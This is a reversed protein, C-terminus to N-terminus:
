PKTGPTVASLAATPTAVGIVEVVNGSGSNAVWVNGSIDIGLATPANLQGFQYGYTGSLPTGAYNFQSISGTGSSNNLTWVSGAGDVAVDVPSALGGGNTATTVTTNTNGVSTNAVNYLKSDHNDIVWACGSGLTISSGNCTASGAAIADARTITAGAPPGIGGAYAAGTYFIGGNSSIRCVLDPTTGYGSVWITGDHNAAVGTAEVVCGHGATAPTITPSGTFSGARYIIGPGGTSSQFPNAIYIVGSLGAAILDPYTTTTAGLTGAPEAPAVTGFSSISSVDFISGGSIDSTWILGNTDVALAAGNSIVTPSSSTSTEAGLPSIQAMDGLSSYDDVYAYGNKDLVMGYPNYIVGTYVISATFDTPPTGVGYYPNWVPDTAGLAILNTPNPAVPNKAIHIMASATDTVIATTGYVDLFLEYCSSGTVLSSGNGASNICAALANGLTNILTYPPVGTNYTTIQPASQDPQDTVGEINYLQQANNFANLLGTSNTTPASITINTGSTAASVPDAAFGATAYAMAVTSLENMFIYTDTSFNQGPNPCPGLDALESAYPNQDGVTSDTWGNIAFLWVEQGLDCKYLGNLNFEGHGVASNATGGGNYGGTQYYCQNTATVYIVPFAVGSACTISSGTVGILSKPATGGYTGLQTEFVYVHAGTVPNQGGFVGGKTIGFDSTGQTDPMSMSTSCGTLLSMSGLLCVLSLSLPYLLRKM